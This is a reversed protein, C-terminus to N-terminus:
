LYKKFEDKKRALENMDYISDMVGNPKYDWAMSSPLKHRDQSRYNKAYFDQWYPDDINVISDRNWGEGDSKKYVSRTDIPGMKKTAGDYNKMNDMKFEKIAKVMEKPLSDGNQGLMKEGIRIAYSDKQNLGFVILDQAYFSNFVDIPHYGGEELQLAETMMQIKQDRTFSKATAANLSTEAAANDENKENSSYRNFINYLRSVRNNVMEVMNEDKSYNETDWKHAYLQANTM